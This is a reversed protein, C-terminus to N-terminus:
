YYCRLADGERYVTEGAIITRYVKAQFTKLPDGSWVVLDARKGVTISGTEAEIGLVKAPISTMMRLVAEPDGIARMLMIASWLYNERGYSKSGTGSAMLQLGQEYYKKVLEESFRDRTYMFNIGDFGCVMATEGATLPPEQERLNDCSLFVLPVGYPQMIRHVMDRDQATDCYVFFPEKETMALHLAMLKENDDGEYAWAQRLTQEFLHFIGMKTMPMIGKGGYVQRVRNSVSAVMAANRKACSKLANIRGDTYFVSMQGGFLNSATPVIGCATIGYAPLQQAALARGNVAHTIELEPLIPDSLEENDESSDKVESSSGNIGWVTVPDIFGPYVNQGALDLSDEGSLATGLEKIREQEIRIDGRWTHGVGDHILGNKLIM